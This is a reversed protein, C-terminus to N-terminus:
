ARSGGPSWGGGLPQELSPNSYAQWAEYRNSCAAWTESMKVKPITKPISTPIIKCTTQITKVTTPCRDCDPGAARVGGGQNLIIRPKLSQVCTKTKIIWSISM